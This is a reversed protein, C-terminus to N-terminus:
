RMNTWIGKADKIKYGSVVVRKNIKKQNREFNLYLNKLIKRLKKVKGDLDKANFSRGGLTFLLDSDLDDIQELSIETDGSSIFTRPDKGLEAFLKRFMDVHNDHDNRLESDAKETELGHKLYKIMELQDTSLKRTIEFGPKFYRQLTTAQVIIKQEKSAEGRIVLNQLRKFERAQVTQVEEAVEKPLAEIVDDLYDYKIKTVGIYKLFDNLMFHYYANSYIQELRGNITNERVWEPVEKPLELENALHKFNAELESRTMFNKRNTQQELFLYIKDDIPARIRHISQLSDRVLPGYASGMYSIGYKREGTYSIGVMVTTTVLIYDLSCDDWASNVDNFDNRQWSDMLSNYVKGNKGAKKFIKHLQETMEKKSCFIYMPHNAMLAIMKASSLSVMIDSNRVKDSRCQVKQVIDLTDTRMTVEPSYYRTIVITRPPYKAKNKIYFIDDKDILKYLTKVVSRYMFAEAIIIKSAHRILEEFRKYTKKRKHTSFTGQSNFQFLLSAFEDLVLVYDDVPIQLKHLSELQITLKKARNLGILDDFDKYFSLQFEVSLSTALTVRPTIVLIRTNKDLESLYSEICNTKGGGMKGDLVVCREPISAIDVADSFYKVDVVEDYYESLDQPVFEDYAIKYYYENCLRSFTDKDTYKKLAGFLKGIGIETAFGNCDRSPNLTQYTTYNMDQDYSDDKASFENWLWLGDDGFEAKFMMGWDIWDKRASIESAPLIEIMKLLLQETIPDLDRSPGVTVENIIKNTKEKGKLLPYLLEYDKAYISAPYFYDVDIDRELMGDCKGSARQSKLDGVMQYDLLYIDSVPCDESRFYIHPLKKRCSLTHAYCNIDFGKQTLYDLFRKDDIDICYLNNVDGTPIFLGIFTELIKPNEYKDLKPYYPRFSKYRERWFVPKNWGTPFGLEKDIKTEGNKTHSFICVGIRIYKINEKRLAHNLKM